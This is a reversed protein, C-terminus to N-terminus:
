LRFIGETDLTDTLYNKGDQLSQMKLQVINEYLQSGENILKKKLDTWYRRPLKSETLVSIVDVVSFYYDEKESDWISRVEKGEFLNSITNLKDM